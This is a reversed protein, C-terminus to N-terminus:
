AYFMLNVKINEFTIKLVNCRQKSISSQMKLILLRKPMEVVSAQRWKRAGPLNQFLGLIHRTIISLPAGEAVRQHIYPMMHQMIEFRNPAELNWLEGMEALLYPNHYAERGIMVGDVHQLHQQTEEFTKIGGNIEITLHPREQKLRYVDEYRLPPVERNEKPSLGQLIAIRAHVIFHTCGTSAVTDVFHLMEEYSQM